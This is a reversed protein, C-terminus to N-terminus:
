VDSGVSPGAGAVSRSRPKRILVLNELHYKRIRRRLAAESLGLLPAARTIIGGARTMAEHIRRMEVAHIEERVDGSTGAERGQRMRRLSPSELHHPEIMGNTCEDFARSLCSKLERINGDWRCRMLLDLALPHLVCRGRGSKREFERLFLDALAPIDETREALRPIELVCESMRYFLDERFLGERVREELDVNTACIILGELRHVKTSGVNRFERRELFHLLKPQLSAPLDAVENLFLTGHQAVEALGQRPEVHPAAGRAVGFLEGEILTEPLTPLPCDVFPGRRGSAEHLIRALHDKGVGSPGTLLIVKGDRAARV